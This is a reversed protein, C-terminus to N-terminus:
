VRLKVVRAALRDHLVAYVAETAREDARDIEVDLVALVRQAVAGPDLAAPIAPALERLARPRLELAWDGNVAYTQALARWTQRDRDYRWLVYLHEMRRHGWGKGMTGACELLLAPDPLDFLTVSAAPRLIKGEFGFGGTAHPDVRSLLKLWTGPANRVATSPLKV